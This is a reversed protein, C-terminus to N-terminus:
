PTEGAARRHEAVRAASRQTDPHDEGLVRRRRTLTDQKLVRARDHEGLASLDVGLNHAADALLALSNAAIGCVWEVVVFGVNLAIGIAFARGYSAPAHAHAHGHGHEHHHDHGHGHGDHGHHPHSM